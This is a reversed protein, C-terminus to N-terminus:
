SMVNLNLLFFGSSYVMAYGIMSKIGINNTIHSTTNDTTGDMITLWLGRVLYTINRTTGPIGPVNWGGAVEFCVAVYRDRYTDRYTRWARATICTPIALYRHCPFRERCERHM